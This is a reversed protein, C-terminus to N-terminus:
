PLPSAKSSGQPRIHIERIEGTLNAAWCLACALEASVPAAKLLIRGRPDKCLLELPSDKQEELFDYIEGPLAELLKEFLLLDREEESGAPDPAKDAAKKIPIRRRQVQLKRPGPNTKKM